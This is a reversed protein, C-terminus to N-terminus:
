YTTVVSNHAQDTTYLDFGTQRGVKPGAPQNKFISKLACEILCSYKSVM